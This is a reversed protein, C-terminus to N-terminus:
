GLVIHAARQLVISAAARIVVTAGASEVTLGGKGWRENKTKKQAARHAMRSDFHGGRLPPVHGKKHDGASLADQKGVREMPGRLRRM